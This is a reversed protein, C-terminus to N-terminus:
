SSDSPAAVLAGAVAELVRGYALVGKDSVPLEEDNYRRGLFRLFATERFHMASTTLGYSICYERLLNSVHRAALTANLDLGTLQWLFEIARKKDSPHVPVFKVLNGRVETHFRATEAAQSIRLQFPGVSLNLIPAGLFAFFITNLKLIANEVASIMRPRRNREILWLAQLIHVPIKSSLAAACLTHSSPRPSGSLIDRVFLRLCHREFPLERDRSGM